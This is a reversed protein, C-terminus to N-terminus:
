VDIKDLAPTKHNLPQLLTKCSDYKLLCSVISLDTQYTWPWVARHWVTFNPGGWEFFLVLSLCSFPYPDIFWCGISFNVPIDNQKAILCVILCTTASGQDIGRIALASSSRPEQRSSSLLLAMPSQSRRILRAAHRGATTRRSPRISGAEHTRAGPAQSWPKNDHSPLRPTM